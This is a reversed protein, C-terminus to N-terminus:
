LAYRTNMWVGAIPSLSLKEVPGEVIILTTYTYSQEYFFHYIKCQSRLNIHLKLLPNIPIYCLDHLERGRQSKLADKSELPLM